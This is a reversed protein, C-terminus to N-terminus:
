RKVIRRIMEVYRGRRAVPRSVKVCSVAVCERRESMWDQKYAENGTLFDIEEVRDRDITYEMLYGTLISGPSYQKWKEDYSLRFISARANHVFWLQAAVPEGKIYLIALRTWGAAAFGAVMKDVFGAYQENAKWSARYVAYYEAMRGPVEDGTYLRINYGHERLLKRRKRIITNRLRGPRLAMYGSFAQGGVRCIWNYHRFLRECRYGTTELCRVLEAMNTDDGIVPELLLGDVPLQSLGRALCLLVERQETDALLLKYHPSYRHRLSDCANGISRSLPLVAMVRDEDLVCALVIVTGAMVETDTLAEYWPRSSFVSQNAAQEFLSDVGAPLQSWESYCAFQM